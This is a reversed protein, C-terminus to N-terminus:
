ADRCQDAGRECEDAQDMTRMQPPHHRRHDCEAIHHETDNAKHHRLARSRRAHAVLASEVELCLYPPCLTVCFFALALHRSTGSQARSWSENSACGTPTKM